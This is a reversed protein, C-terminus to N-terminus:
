AFKSKTWEEYISDFYQVARRICRNPCIIYCGLAEIWLLAGSLAAQKGGWKKDNENFWWCCCVRLIYGSPTNSKRLFVWVKRRFVIVSMSLSEDIDPQEMLQFLVATRGRFQVSWFVEAVGNCNLLTLYKHICKEVLSGSKTHNFWIGRSFITFSSRVCQFVQRIDSISLTVVIM